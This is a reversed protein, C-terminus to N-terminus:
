QKKDNTSKKTDKTKTDHKDAGKTKGASQEEKPKEEENPVTPLTCADGNKIQNAIIEGMAAITNAAGIGTYDDNYNYM